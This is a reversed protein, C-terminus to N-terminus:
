CRVFTQYFDSLVNKARILCKLAIYEFITYYFDSLVNKARILCKLAIYEFITCNEVAFLVSVQTNYKIHVISIDNVNNSYKRNKNLFSPQLLCSFIQQDLCSPSSGITEWTYKTHLKHTIAAEWLNIKKDVDEPTFSAMDSSM